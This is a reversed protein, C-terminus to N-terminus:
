SSYLISLIVAGSGCDTAWFKAYCTNKDLKNVQVIYDCLKDGLVTCSIIRYLRSYNLIRDVEGGVM